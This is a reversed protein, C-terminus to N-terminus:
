QAWKVNAEQAITAAQQNSVTAEQKLPDIQMLPTGSNVRDGSHVYIHTIVGEVQPSINASDRSKLTAVYESSDTIQQSAIPEVKVAMAPPAGQQAQQKGGGCATLAICAMASVLLSPICVKSARMKNMWIM